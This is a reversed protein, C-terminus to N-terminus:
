WGADAPALLATAMSCFTPPAAASPIRPLYSISCRARAMALMGAVVVALMLSLMLTDYVLRSEESCRPSNPSVNFADVTIGFRSFAM